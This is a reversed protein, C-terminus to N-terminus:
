KTKVIKCEDVDVSVVVCGMLQACLDHMKELDRPLLNATVFLIPDSCTARRDLVIQSLVTPLCESLNFREAFSCTCAGGM